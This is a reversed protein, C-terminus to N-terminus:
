SEILSVGKDTIAWGEGKYRYALGQDALQDLIGYVIVYHDASPNPVSPIGLWRSIESPKIVRGIDHPESGTFRIYVADTREYLVLLVAEKLIQLASDAMTKLTHDKM